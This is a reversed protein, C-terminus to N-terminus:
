EQDTHRIAAHNFQEIIRASAAKSLHQRDLHPKDEGTVRYRQTLARLLQLQKEMRQCASCMMLHFKVNLRERVTLKRDLSQSVMVSAEKCTLM